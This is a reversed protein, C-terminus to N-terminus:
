IAEVTPVVSATTFFCRCATYARSPTSFRVWATRSHVRRPAGPRCITKQFRPSPACPQHNRPTVKSVRSPAKRIRIRAPCAIQRWDPGSELRSFQSPPPHCFWCQAGQRSQQKNLAHHMSYVVTAALREISTKGGEVREIRENPSRDLSAVSQM